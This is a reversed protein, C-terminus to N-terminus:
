RCPTAGWDLTAPRGPLDLTAAAVPSRAIVKGHRM